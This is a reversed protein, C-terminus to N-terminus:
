LVLLLVLVTVGFGVRLSSYRSARLGILVERTAQSTGVPLVRDIFGTGLVKHFADGQGRVLLPGQGRFNPM